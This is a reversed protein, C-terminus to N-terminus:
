VPVVRIPPDVKGLFHAGSSLFGRIQKGLTQLDTLTNEAVLAVRARDLM